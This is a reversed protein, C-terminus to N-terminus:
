ATPERRCRSNSPLIWIGQRAGTMLSVRQKVNETAAGNDAKTEVRLQMPLRPKGTEAPYLRSASSDRCAAQVSYQKDLLDFNLYLPTDTLSGPYGALASSTLHIEWRYRGAPLSNPKM